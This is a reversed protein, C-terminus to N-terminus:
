DNKEKGLNGLPLEHNLCMRPEEEVFYRHKLADETSIRRNPDLQLMMGILELCAESAPPLVDKM